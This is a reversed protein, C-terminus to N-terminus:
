FGAEVYTPVVSTSGISESPPSSLQEFFCRVCSNNSCNKNCFDFLVDFVNTILVIKIAFTSCFM